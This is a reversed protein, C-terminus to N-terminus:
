TPPHQRLAQSVTRLLDVIRPGWRSAIDDDLAVIRGDRVAPMTSWGPRKAVTAASQRCCRTDALFIYAPNAKLV